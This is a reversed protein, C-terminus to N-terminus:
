EFVAYSVSLTEWAHSDVPVPTIMEVQDILVDASRRNRDRWDRAALDGLVQAQAEDGAQVVVVVRESVDVVCRYQKMM